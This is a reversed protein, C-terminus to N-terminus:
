IKKRFNLPSDQVYPIGLELATFAKQLEKGLYAAHEYRTFLKKKAIAFYIDTPLKGSIVLDVVNKKRCLGVEVQGKKRNIRIIFYGKRDMVFDKRRFKKASVRKAGHTILRTRVLEKGTRIDKVSIANVPCSFGADVIRKAEAAPVSVTSYYHNTKSKRSGNILLARNRRMVFLHPAIKACMGLGRCREKYYSIKLKKM